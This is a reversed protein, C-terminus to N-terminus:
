PKRKFLNLFTLIIKSIFNVNLDKQYFSKNKEIEILKIIEFVNTLEKTNPNIYRPYLIYSAAVLEELTRVKKRRDIKILDETLGWGSYFPTGHCVVKKGKILAELGVLSSIVHVDEVIELVDSIHYDTVILDAYKESHKLTLSTNERNKSLVDPHPKYIIFSNPNEKRVTELLIKNNINKNLNYKISADSDVQGVVLIIKKNTNVLLKKNKYNNYKSINKENLLKILKESKKILSQNFNMDDNLINELDSPGEANFYIGTTDFILSYPTSLNSGLDVSRIFGDEVRTINKQKNVDTTINKIEKMGWIYINDEKLNKKTPRYNHFVINQNKIYNGIFKKKWISFGFLHPQKFDLVFIYKLYKLLQLAEELLIQEGTQPNAYESYLVTTAYFLEEFTRVKKRRDIKILDETLGWGSYFPTGFCKVTKGLLLAEFGMGSTKTYIVDFYSLLDIPNFNESIINFGYNKFIEIDIDSEKIDLLVEPHIKVYYDYLEIPYEKLADIIIDLSNYENGNGLELSLDGKTQAVFLLKKKNKKFYNLPVKQNLNYKSLQHKKIYEINQKIDNFDINQYLTDDNLFNELLSPSNSDYYIGIPDKIISFSLHNQSGVKISRFFGDECLLKNCNYKKSLEEAKLGSKKRGWGVITDKSSINTQFSKFVFTNDFFHKNQIYISKNVSFYKM